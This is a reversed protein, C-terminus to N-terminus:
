AEEREAWESCSFDPQRTVQPDFQIQCEAYDRRCTECRRGKLVALEALLDDRDETLSDREITMYRLEDEYKAAQESWEDERKNWAKTLAALEAEAQEARQQQVMGAEILLEHGHGSLAQKLEAELEICQTEMDIYMLRFHDLRYVEAELEAIREEKARLLRERELAWEEAARKARSFALVTEGAQAVQAELEAIRAHLERNKNEEHKVGCEKDLLEAEAQERRTECLDRKKLVDKLDLQRERNEAELEAIAADAAPIVADWDRGEASGDDATVKRYEDVASM